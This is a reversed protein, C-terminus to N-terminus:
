VAGAICFASCRASVLSCPVQASSILTTQWEAFGFISEQMLVLAPSEVQLGEYPEPPWATVRGEDCVGNKAASCSDSCLAMETQGQEWTFTVKEQVFMARRFDTYAGCRHSASPLMIVYTGPCFAASSAPIPVANSKLSSLSDVGAAAAADAGGAVMFEELILGAASGAAAGAQGEAPQKPHRCVMCPSRPSM